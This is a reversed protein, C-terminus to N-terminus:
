AFLLKALSFKLEATGEGEIRLIRIRVMAEAQQQNEGSMRIFGSRLKFGRNRLRRLIRLRPGVEAIQPIGLPARLVGGGRIAARERDIWRSRICIECEACDEELLAPHIFRQRMQGRCCLSGIGLDRSLY